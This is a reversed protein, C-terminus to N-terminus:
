ITKKYTGNNIKPENFATKDLNLGKTKTRKKILKFLRLKTKLRHYLRKFNSYM